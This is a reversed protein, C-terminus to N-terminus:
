VGGHARGQASGQEYSSPHNCGYCRPRDARLVCGGGVCSVQGGQVALPPLGCCLAQVRFWSLPRKQLMSWGHVWFHVVSCEPCVGGHWRVRVSSGALLAWLCNGLRIHHTQVCSAV